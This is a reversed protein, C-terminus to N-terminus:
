WRLTLGLVVFVDTIAHFVGYFFGKIDLNDVSDPPYGASTLMHHRQLVQHLVIGDFLVVLAWTRFPRGPRSPSSGPTILFTLWSCAPRECFTEDVPKVASGGPRRPSSRRRHARFEEAVALELGM